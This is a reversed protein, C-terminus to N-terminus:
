IWGITHNTIVRSSSDGSEEEMGVIKSSKKGTAKSM